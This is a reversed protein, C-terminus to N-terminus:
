QFFHPIQPIMMKKEIIKLVRNNKKKANMFKTNM